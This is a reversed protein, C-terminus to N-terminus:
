ARKALSFWALKSGSIGGAEPWDSAKLNDEM